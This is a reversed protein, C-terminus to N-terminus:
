RLNSNSAPARARTHTHTHTHTYSIVRYRNEGACCLVACCSPAARVLVDVAQFAPPLAALAAKMANLDAVDAQVTHCREPGGLEAQLARLREGRRGTAVM